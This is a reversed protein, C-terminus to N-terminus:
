PAEWLYRAINDVGHDERSRSPRDWGKTAPREAIVKWGAARLSVGSEGKQTYTIIRKYGLAYAARRIAGYLMSNANKTGVTCTRTVEITVGDDYHRAVPRGAIAVGVLEEGQAVGVSFKHGQPAKHHRHHQVVFKRATKFTVPVLDLNETM